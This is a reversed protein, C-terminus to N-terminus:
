FPSNSVFYGHAGQKLFSRFINGMENLEQVRDKASNNKVSEM